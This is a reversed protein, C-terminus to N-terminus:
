NMSNRNYFYINLGVLAMFFLNFIWITIISTLPPAILILIAVNLIIILIQWAIIIEYVTKCKELQNRKLYLLLFVALILCTGGFAWSYYPDFFPWQIISLFYFPIVLYFFAFILGISANFILLLKMSRKMETM